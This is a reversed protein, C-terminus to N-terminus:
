AGDSAKIVFLYGRNVGTEWADNKEDRAWVAVKTEDSNLALAEVEHGQDNINYYHMWRVVKLDLDMRVVTCSKDADTSVAYTTDTNRGGYIVFPSTSTKSSVIARYNEETSVPNGSPDVYASTKPLKAQSDPFCETGLAVWRSTLLLTLLGSRLVM